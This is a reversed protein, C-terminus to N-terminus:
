ADGGGGTVEALFAELDARRVRLSRPGVKIGPLRGSRVWIYVMNQSVGLMSAVEDVRLLEPMRLSQVSQSM